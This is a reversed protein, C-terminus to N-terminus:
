FVRDSGVGACSVFSFIMSVFMSVELGRPVANHPHRGKIMTSVAAAVFGLGCGAASAAMVPRRGWSDIAFISLVVAAFDLTLCASSLSTNLV